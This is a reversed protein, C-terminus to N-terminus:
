LYWLYQVRRTTARDAATRMSRSGTLLSRYYPPMRNVLPAATGRRRVVTAARIPIRGWDDMYYWRVIRNRPQRGAQRSTPTPPFIQRRRTPETRSTTTTPLTTTVVPEVYSYDPYQPQTNYDYNGDYNGYNDGGYDTYATQQTDDAYSPYDYQGFSGGLLSTAEFALRAAEQEAGIRAHEQAIKEYLSLHRDKAKAVAVTDKPLKPEVTLGSHADAHQQAIKAYLAFHKEQARAVAETQQPTQPLHSLVPYFGHQDATYEVTRVQNRPDVYSFSGRVVGSGDSVESHTRDVHGPSRGASYTFAYPKPPPPVTTTKEEYEEVVVIQPKRHAIVDRRAATCVVALTALFAFSKLHLM